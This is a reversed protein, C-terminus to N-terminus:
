AATAKKRTEEDIPKIEGTTAYAMTRSAMARMTGDYNGASMNLVFNQNIGVNKADTTADFDAGIFVVDYGKAKMGDLCEKATEKKARSSNEQGDTLIVVSVKKTKKESVLKNLEVIADYLPTMARPTIETTKLDVWESLPIRRRIVEFPSQSDFVSVTIKIKDGNLSNVYSNLAGITEDWRIAMSGSRDILFYVQM